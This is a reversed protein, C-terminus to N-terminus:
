ELRFPRQRSWDYGDADSSVQQGEGNKESTKPVRRLQAREFNEPSKLTQIEEPRPPEKLSAVSQELSTDEVKPAKLFASLETNPKGWLYLGLVVGCGLIWGLRKSFFLKSPWCHWQGAMLAGDLLAFRDLKARVGRGPSRALFLMGLMVGVVTGTTGWLFGLLGGALISPLLAAILETRGRQM